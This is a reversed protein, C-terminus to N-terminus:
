LRDARVMMCDLEVVRGTSRQRSVPYLATIGFGAAEYAAIAEAMGPAGDYIPMVSLEAQLGVFESAREGLGAFAELDYGQTDLKLFPRPRAVPPLVEDLVGDLRRVPVEEVRPSRLQAYRRAGFGTPSFASSMTGPVVNMPLSGDQAGLACRHVTWGPDDRAAAALKAFTEPVPEFSVIHGDYGVRRLLRAYQGRNAGVDVVCNVRYLRLLEAVHRGALYATFGKEAVFWDAQVRVPDTVVVAGTAAKILKADRRRGVVVTGRGASRVDYGARVLLRLLRRRVASRYGDAAAM